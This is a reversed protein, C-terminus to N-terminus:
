REATRFARRREESICSKMILGAFSPKDADHLAAADMRFLHKGFASLLAAAGMIQAFFYFGTEDIDERIRM